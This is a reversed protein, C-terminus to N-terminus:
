LESHRVMIHKLYHWLVSKKLIAAFQIDLPGVHHFGGGGANWIKDFHNLPQDVLPVGIQSPAVDIKVGGLQLFIINKVLLLLFIQGHADAFAHLFVGVLPVLRIKHQPEGLGFKLILLQFPFAGPTQAIRAPVDLAGADAAAMQPFRQINMGAANVVGERVMGIFDGLAFGIETM